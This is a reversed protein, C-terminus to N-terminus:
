RGTVIHVSAGLEVRGGREHERLTATLNREVEEAAHPGADVLAQGLSFARLAFRSAEPAPLGGGYPITSRWTSVSVETFGAAELLDRFGEVKAYRFPGPDSLEREPFDIFRSAAERLCNAWPNEAPLSWVAVAFRGGPALWRRLNRFAAPPDDFFMLGFRSTLRDYPGVPPSATALDLRHFSPSIHDTPLDVSAARAAALLTPSLDFGDVSSGPPLHRCLARTTGGGGCALDAVRLAGNL